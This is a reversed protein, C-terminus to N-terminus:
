EGTYTDGEDHSEVESEPSSGAEETIPPPSKQRKKKLGRNTLKYDRSYKIAQSYREMTSHNLRSNTGKAANKKQLLKEFHLTLHPRM